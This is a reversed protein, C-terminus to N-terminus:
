VDFLVKLTVIEFPKIRFAIQNKGIVSAQEIINELMDTFYANAIKFDSNISVTTSRNNPDYLRLVYGKGDESPKVTDLVAGKASFLSLSSCDKLRGERVFLPNNLLYAQKM